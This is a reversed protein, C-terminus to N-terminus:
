RVMQHKQVVKKIQKAHIPEIGELFDQLGYVIAIDKIQEKWILYNVGDLKVLFIPNIFISSLSTFLIYSYNNQSTSSEISTDILALLHAYYSYYLSLKIFWGHFFTHLLVFSCGLFIYLFIISFYLEYIENTYVISFNYNQAELQFVAQGLQVLILNNLSALMCHM